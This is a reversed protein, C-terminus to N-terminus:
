NEKMRERARERRCHQWNASPWPISIDAPLNPGALMALLLFHSLLYVSSFSVRIFLLEFITVTIASMLKLPFLPPPPTLLASSLPSIDSQPIVHLVSKFVMLFDVCFFLLSSLYFFLLLPEDDSSMIMHIDGHRHKTGGSCDSDGIMLGTMGIFFIQISLLHLSPFRTLTWHFVYLGAMFQGTLYIPPPKQQLCIFVFWLYLIVELANLFFFCKM